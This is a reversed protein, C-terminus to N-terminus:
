CGIIKFLFISNNFIKIEYLFLSELFLVGNILFKKKIKLDDFLAKTMATSGYFAGNEDIQVANTEVCSIILRVLFINDKPYENNLIIPIKKNRYIKKLDELNLYVNDVM